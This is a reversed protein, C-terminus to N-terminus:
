KRIRKVPMVNIWSSPLLLTFSEPTSLFQKGLLSIQYVGRRPKQVIGALSMHSLAWTVRDYFIKANGSDYKREVEEETLGFHSALPAEFEKIRLEDCTNLLELAPFRIEDHKPITM